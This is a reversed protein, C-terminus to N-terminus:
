PSTRSSKRHAKEGAAVREDGPGGVPDPPGDRLPKAGLARDDGADIALLARLELEVQGM